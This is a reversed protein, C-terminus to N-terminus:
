WLGPAITDNPAPADEDGAGEHLGSPDILARVEAWQKNLILRLFYQAHPPAPPLPQALPPLLSKRSRGM